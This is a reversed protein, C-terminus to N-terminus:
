TSVPLVARVLTGGEPGPVVHLHGGLERARDSMSQLGLGGTSTAAAGAGTGDDAVEVYLYGDDATTDLNVHCRLARAHRAANAMAEGAIRYAAVEM